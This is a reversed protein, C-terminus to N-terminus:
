LDPGIVLHLRLPSGPKSLASAVDLRVLGIPSRWRGGIGASHKLNLPLDEVANGVDTFVAVGWSELIRHEYELSGTFLHRGGTTEDEGDQIPGLTKYGYGRVSRDGGAFFRVSAPLVSVGTAATFGVEARALIRGSRFPSRVLKGRLSGQLFSGDAGVAEHSGRVDLSLNYGRTPYTASNSRTRTWTVGPLLLGDTRDDTGADFSEVRYNMYITERFGFRSHNLSAGAQFTSSRSADSREHLYGLTFAAHHGPGGPIPVAYRLNVGNQVFSSRVEATASHGARNLRRKEAGLTVRPGTDTGYGIGFDYRSRPRPILSVEVPVELDQARDRQAQVEVRSFLDSAQVANQLARLGGTTFAEGRSFPVMSRLLEEEVPTEQFHVPGFRYRPGTELHLVIRAARAARDVSVSRELFTADLYGREAAVLQLARKGLEYAEHELRDGRNLPFSAIAPRFEADEAGDGLVRIDIESVRVPEGPDIRYRAVWQDGDRTLESEVAPDYYGFPELARVIDAEAAHHLRRIQAEFLNGDRSRREIELHALVNDRLEGSVGEVRVRVSENTSDPSLGRDLVSASALAPVLLLLGVVLVSM